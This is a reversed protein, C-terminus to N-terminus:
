RVLRPQLAVEGHEAVIEFRVGRCKHVSMLDTCAKDITAKFLEFEVARENKDQHAAAFREYLAMLDQAEVPEEAAQAPAEARAEQEPAAVPEHEVPKTTPIDTPKEDIDDAVLGKVDGIEPHISHQENIIPRPVLEAQQPLRYRLHSINPDRSDSLVGALENFAQAIDNLEGLDRDTIRRDYRGRVLDRLANVIEDTRLETPKPTTMVVCMLAVLAGMDILIRAFAAEKAVGFTTFFGVMSALVIVTPVTITLIRQHKM